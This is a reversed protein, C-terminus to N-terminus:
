QRAAVDTQGEPVDHRLSEVLVADLERGTGDDASDAVEADGVVDDLSGAMGRLNKALDRLRSESAAINALLVRDREGSADAISAARREADRVVQAAEADAERRREDAYRDADSRIGRSAAKAEDVLERSSAVNAQAEQTASARVDNALRAAEERTEEADKEAEMRIKQAAAEASALVSAIHEGVSAMDLGGSESSRLVSAGDEATGPSQSVSTADDDTRAKYIGPATTVWETETTEEIEEKGDKHGRPRLFEPMAKGGRNSRTRRFSLVLVLALAAVVVLSSGVAVATGGDAWSRHSSQLKTHVPTTPGTAPKAAPHSEVGLRAKRNVSPRTTTLPFQSWLQEVGAGPTRPPAAVAVPVAVVAATVAVFYRGCRM